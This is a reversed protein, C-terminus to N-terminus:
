FFLFNFHYHIAFGSNVKYHIQIYFYFECSVSHSPESENVWRAITIILKEFTQSFGHHILVVGSKQDIPAVTLNSLIGSIENALAQSDKGIFDDWCSTTL